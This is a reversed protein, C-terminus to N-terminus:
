SNLAVSHFESNVCQIPICLGGMQHTLICCSGSSFTAAAVATFEFRLVRM